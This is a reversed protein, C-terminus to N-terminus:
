SRRMTIPSTLHNTAYLGGFDGYTGWHVFPAPATGPGILVMQQANTAALVTAMPITDYAVGNSYKVLNPTAYGMTWAPFFCNTWTNATSFRWTGDSGEFSGYTGILNTQGTFLLLHQGIFLNSIVQENTNVEYIRQALAAAANTASINALTISNSSGILSSSINTATTANIGGATIQGQLSNSASNLNAQSAYANTSYLSWNTLNGAADAPQLGPASISISPISFNTFGGGSVQINNTTLSVNVGAVLTPIASVPQVILNFPGSYQGYLTSNSGQETPTGGLYSVYHWVGSENTLTILTTSISNTFTGNSPNWQFGFGFNPSYVYNTLLLSPQSLGRLNYATTNLNTAFSIQNSIASNTAILNANLTAMSSNTAALAAGSVDFSSAAKFAASGLANTAALATGSADFTSTSVFAASGLANTASTIQVTLNTATVSGYLTSNTLITGNGAGNQIAIGGTGGAAAAITVSGSNTTMTVNAGAVINTFAGTAALATLTSNTAQYAAPNIYVITTMGNTAGQAKGSADFTTTASFAASGLANTAAKAAVIGATNTDYGASSTFAASGLANTAAQAAGSGDFASTASFAASGLHNTAITAAATGAANTDFSSAASFAATGLANTAAQAKGSTDFASAAASHPPDLGM